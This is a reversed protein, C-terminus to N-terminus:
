HCFEVRTDHFFILWNLLSIRDQQHLFKLRLCPDPRIHPTRVEQDRGRSGGVGRFFTSAHALNLMEPWKKLWGKADFWLLRGRASPEMRHAAQPETTKSWAARTKSQKTTISIAKISFWACIMSVILRYSESFTLQYYSLTYNQSSRWILQNENVFVFNKVAM